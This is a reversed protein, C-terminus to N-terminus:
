HFPEWIKDHTLTQTIPFKPTPSAYQFSSEPVERTTCHNPSRAEVAPPVPEIGPLPILIGCAVHM